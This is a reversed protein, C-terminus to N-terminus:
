ESRTEAGAPASDPSASGDTGSGAASRATADDGDDDSTFATEVAAVV